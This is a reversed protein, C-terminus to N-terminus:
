ESGPHKVSGEYFKESQTGLISDFLNTVPALIASVAKIEELTPKHLNGHINQSLRSSGDRELVAITVDLTTDVLNVHGVAAIRNKETAFAVDDITLKGNEIHWNSVVRPIGTVEGPDGTILVALDAGKTVALGVPGAFLVAGVDVLTFNQSRQIRELVKDVNVGHLQLNTGESYMRGNFQKVMNEWDDGTMQVDIGFSMTGSVVPDEMLSALWDEIAFQEVYYKFRYSPTESWPQAIFVGEGKTRFFSEADPIIEYLGNDVSVDFRVDSVNLGKARFRESAISGVTTLTALPNPAIELDYYLDHLDITLGQAVLTDDEALDYITLDADAMRLTRFITSDKPFQLTVDFPGNLVINFLSTSDLDMEFQNLLDLMHIDDAETDSTLSYPKWASGNYAGKLTLEGGATLINLQDFRINFGSTDDYIDVTSNAITMDPFDNFSANLLGINFDISPFSDFGLLRTTTSKATVELNLEEIIHNFNRGVSPDFAFVEPLDFVDSVIKLDASIDSEIGLPLFLINKMTGDITVDTKGTTVRFDELRLDRNDRKMRGNINELSIVDPFVISVDNFVLNSKYKDGLFRGKKVDVEGEIEADITLMGGLSDVIDTKFVDNLGSLETKLYWDLNIYPRRFNELTFRGRTEGGPLRASFHNLRLQAESFDKKHGTTVFADFKLDRISKGVEPMQLNVNKVGCTLDIFPTEDFTNGIVNAECYFDGELLETRNQYIVEDRFVLTLLSFGKDTLRVDLDMTGADKLGVSGAMDFRAGEFILHSSAVDLLKDKGHYVLDAALQVSKHEVLITGETQYYVLTVDTTLDLESRTAKHSFSASLNDIHFSSKRDVLRNEFAVTIDEITLNEVALFKELEPTTTSTDVKEVVLTSDPKGAKNSGVAILLNISSDPYTLIRVKGSELTVDSVNLNGDLLDFLNVSLHIHEFECILDDVSDKYAGGKEFYSVNVLSLSLKPFHAFPTLAVGDFAVEGEQIDNLKLLLNRSIDDRYISFLIFAAALLVVLSLALYGVIKLTTRLITSATKHKTPRSKM